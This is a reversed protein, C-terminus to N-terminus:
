RNVRVMPTELRTGQVRGVIAAHSYGLKKLEELCADAKAEPVGGLLGGATQPDFLLPWRESQMEEDPTSVAHRLRLNQSQLSSVIGARTTEIAGDLLPVKQLDLEVGFRSAKIMEVLHGLLGFGTVDTCATAEHRIFCEAGARNSVLMSELAAEIWRGRAQHRMEAAFLTGTGLPKILILRDGPQLGGKRLLKAPSVLGNVSLGFALEAGEATHGGVLTANEARLVELAGAMLQELQEEVKAELGHPLVALALASQPEGGMAFIDGLCHNTAIKGFLYPDDIFSRFFDVTHVVAKGSPPLTIAADDPANLGVLVDSREVAKLRGLVRNLVTSGVKAGCGGCRMAPSSLEQLAADDALGAPLAPAVPPEMEPLERYQRMWRKDIQDKLRWLWAGELALAGRSAVVYQDGTTILSLVEKQPTFSQLPQGTLILRLNRALPRGQRVAFVGSQPRPHNKVAAVDGAAFVFPHSFSQLCDNLSIFGGEDIALGCAAIWKPASANTVWVVADCSVADGPQCILREAEVEIVRHKLHLQVGRERLIRVFKAQVRRNHTPLITASDTLLHFEIREAPKGRGTLLTQLRHRMSLTLEVGGAGGGVICIHLRRDASSVIRGMLNEWGKLFRDIPKVPLSHHAAGPIGKMHPTSGTDLSLLDFAVPPRNDCLVLKRGLDLGTVMSRYFRAGAFQCLPRLEVHAEDIGYHGAILGPLMGSYPTSADKSVLTVRVGPLPNMGFSKLVAVHAHGGGVLVLDKIVPAAAFNM